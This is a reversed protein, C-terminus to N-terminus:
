TCWPVEHLLWVQHWSEVGLAEPRPPQTTMTEMWPPSVAQPAAM